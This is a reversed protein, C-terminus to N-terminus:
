TYSGTRIYIYLSVNFNLEGYKRLNNHKVMSRMEERKLSSAGGKKKRKELIPTSGPSSTWEMTQRVELGYRTGFRTRCRARDRAKEKFKRYGTKEKSNM